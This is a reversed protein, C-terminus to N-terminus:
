SEFKLRRVQIGPSKGGFKTRKRSNKSMLELVLLVLYTFCFNLFICFYKGVPNLLFIPM